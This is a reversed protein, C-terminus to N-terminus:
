RRGGAPVPNRPPVPTSVVLSSTTEGYLLFQDLVAELAKLSRVHVRLLFCDEGSIRHCEAVESLRVALETVKPLQRPGPRVRIWAAIPLGIAAPDVVLQYARIVGARELNGVRDRVAPASMGVRRALEAASLRPDESLLTLLQHNISDLPPKGEPLRPESKRGRSATM